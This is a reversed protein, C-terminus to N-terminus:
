LLDEVVAAWGEFSNSGIYLASSGEGIVRGEGDVFITTPVYGSEFADFEQTYHLIPYTVGTYSLVADVDEEADPTRYVGLILLGRDAYTDQLRQLDAMEGVCPGCWPEWFNIMTLKHSLFVSQDWTEGGRDVTSFVLGDYGDEEPTGTGSAGCGSLLTVCLLLALLRTKM